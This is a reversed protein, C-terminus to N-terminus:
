IRSRLQREAIKVRSYLYPRLSKEDQLLNEVLSLAEENCRKSKELNNESKAIEAQASLMQADVYRMYANFLANKEPDKMRLHTYAEGIPDAQALFDDKFRKYFFLANKEQSKSSSLEARIEAYQLGAELHLPEAPLKKAIQLDKLRHLITVVEANDRMKQEAPLQKFALKALHLQATNAVISSVQQNKTDFLFKYAKQAPGVKGEHEYAKALELIAHRHHEWGLSPDEEQLHILKELVLVRDSTKKAVDLLHALKLAETELYISDSDIKLPGKGDKLGLLDNFLTRARDIAEPKGALAEQYYHNTLWLHNEKKLKREKWVNSAFLHDAAYSFFHSRNDWESMSLGQSLYANYLELHLAEHDPLTPNFSLAKEANQIFESAEDGLRQHCLAKLLYGEALDKPEIEETLFHSVLPMAEDFRDLECLTKIQVLAFQHAEAESLINERRLVETLIQVFTGKAEDAQKPDGQKMEDISCNLMHRWVSPTRGSNPYQHLYNTFEARAEAWKGTQTLLLGYDYLVAETEEFQPYESKLLELDAIAKDFEGLDRSMQAHMMVIQPTEPERPFQKHFGSLTHELLPMDKMYRACNVLLLYASKLEKSRSEAQAAFTELPFVAQEYDGLFYFSRGEYFQLLPAKEQPMLAITKKYFKLYEGYNEGQYLLILRNFAALRSRKGGMEHVKAFTKAAEAANEKIQLIGAQFLFRERHEPYKQALSSYLSAAREDEKLLRHIEALPFLVRDSYKTQTLVKYHPKALNLYHLKDEMEKSKLAQRFAAEALLYRVKVMQQTESGRGHRLRSDAEEIVSLYDRVEFLAQLQNFSVKDQIEFCEIQGYTSLAEQFDREQFYLDGLMALLHDRLASQPNQELFHCIQRKVTVYDGDKWYETIRRLVLAEKPTASQVSGFLPTLLATLAIFLSLGWRQPTFKRAGM